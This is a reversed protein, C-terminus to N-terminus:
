LISGLTQMSQPVHASAHGIPAIEGASYDAPMAFFFLSDQDPLRKDKIDNSRKHCQLGALAPGLAM